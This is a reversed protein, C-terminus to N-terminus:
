HGVQHEGSGDVVLQRHFTGHALALNALQITYPSLYTILLLLTWRTTTIVAPHVKENCFTCFINCHVNERIKHIM